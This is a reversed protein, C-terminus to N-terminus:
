LEFYIIFMLQLLTHLTFVDEYHECYIPLLKCNFFIIILFYRLLLNLLVIFKAFFMEVSNQIKDSVTLKVFDFLM